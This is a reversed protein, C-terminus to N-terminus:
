VFKQKCETNRVLHSQTHGQPSVSANFANGELYFMQSIKFIGNNFDMNVLEYHKKEKKCKAAM